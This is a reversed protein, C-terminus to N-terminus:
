EPRISRAMDLRYQLVILCLLSLCWATTWVSAAGHLWLHIAFAGAGLAVIVRWATGARKVFLSALGLVMAVLYAANQGAFLELSEWDYSFGLTHLAEACLPLFGGLIFLSAM